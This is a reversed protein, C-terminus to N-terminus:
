EQLRNSNILSAPEVGYSWGWNKPKFKTQILTIDITNFTISNVQTTHAKTHSSWLYANWKTTPKQQKTTKSLFNFHPTLKPRPSPEMKKGSKDRHVNTNRLEFLEQGHHVLQNDDVCVRNVVGSMKSTLLVTRDSLHLIALETGIYVPAGRSRLIEIRASDIGLPVSISHHKNPNHDTSVILSM